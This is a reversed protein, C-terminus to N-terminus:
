ASYTRTILKTRGPTTFIGALFVNSSPAISSGTFVTSLATFRSASNRPSTTSTAPCPGMPSINVRSSCSAPARTM